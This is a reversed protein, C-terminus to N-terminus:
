NPENTEQKPEEIFTYGPIEFGNLKITKNTPIETFGKVDFRTIFCNESTNFTCSSGTNFTCNYGTKFTCSSGTKFICSSGTNFTCDSDTHFTCDSGTHFTCDSGTNFTAGEYGSFDLVLNNELTSFTKTKEDWTYKSTELTKGNQTVSFMNKEKNKRRVKVGDM